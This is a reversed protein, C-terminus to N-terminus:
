QNSKQIGNHREQIEYYQNKLRIMTIDTLMKRLVQQSKIIIRRYIIKPKERRSSSKINQKTYSSIKM